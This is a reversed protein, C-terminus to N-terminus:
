TGFTYVYVSAVGPAVDTCSVEGLTEQGGSWVGVGDFGVTGGTGVEATDGDVTAHLAHRTHRGCGDRWSAEEPGLALEIGSWPDLVELSPANALWLEFSESQMGVQTESTGGQGPEGLVSRYSVTVTTGVLTTPDPVMPNTAAAIWDAGDATRVRLWRTPTDDWDVVGVGLWEARDRCGGPPEGEGVEQVLGSIEFTTATGGSDDPTADAAVVCARNAPLPSPGTPTAATDDKAPETTGCALVLLLLM